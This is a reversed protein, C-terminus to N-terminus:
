NITGFRNWVLKRLPAVWESELIKEGSPAPAQRGDLLAIESTLRRPELQRLGILFPQALSMRVQFALEHAAQHDDM